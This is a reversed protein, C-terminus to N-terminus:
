PSDVGTLNSGPIEGRPSEGRRGLLNHTHVHEGPRIAAAAVGITEGYKVVAEGAAHPLIALKHFAPVRNMAAIRLAEGGAAHRVRVPEGSQLEDLATAVTDAPHLLIAAGATAKPDHDAM